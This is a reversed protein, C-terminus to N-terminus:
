NNSRVKDTETKSHPQAIRPYCRLCPARLSHSRRACSSSERTGTRARVLAAQQHYLQFINQAAFEALSKNTARKVVIGLLFYNTNSYIWENGPINNLERQRVVMKLIEDPSNFDSIDRGSLSILTFFDRFGSTQHIMQRLTIVHGYDPLELLYKRVDDDLSLFGQESALVVTAATFQKSVSGMYLVSQTSLPVGLELSALGYAKRYVFQGDRIVGLSCEPSGAREYVSFLQDVTQPAVIDAVAAVHVVIRYSSQGYNPRRTVSNAAEEPLHIHFSRDLAYPTLRV